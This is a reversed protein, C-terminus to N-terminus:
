RILFDKLGQGMPRWIVGRLAAREGTPNSLGGRRNEIYVNKRGRNCNLHAQETEQYLEPVSHKVSKGRL